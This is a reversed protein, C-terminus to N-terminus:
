IPMNILDFYSIRLLLAFEIVVKSQISHCGLHVFKPGM